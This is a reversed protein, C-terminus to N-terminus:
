ASPPARSTLVLLFPFAPAHSDESEHDVPALVVAAVFLFLPVLIALFLGPAAPTMAVLLLAVVCLFAIVRRASFM